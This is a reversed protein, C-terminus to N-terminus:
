LFKTTKITETSLYDLAKELDVDLNLHQPTWPVYLDPEIGKGTMGLGKDIRSLRSTPYMFEFGESWKKSVLNAYDNLGMTPRGIVIVKNSKKCIEVFSDGSSGCMCDTLVTILKPKKYGKVFTIPMIDEFNFEVLGKGKNKKWERIFIKLFLQAEEDEINELETLSEELFREANSNTCNFFMKDEKDVLELGEEPILYPLLPFFSSDSGGYNVRVDVIWNEMSDLLIQNENILNIISDPNMFDSFTLLLTDENVKEVSYTPEYTTKEYFKFKMENINGHSDKVEGFDYLSFIPMWNEREPHNENLLRGHKEKLEPITYGGISNFSMGTQLDLEKNVQTVYLSERYRRVRFGRDFVKTNMLCNDYFHIHRDNFDLLYDKVIDVFRERTLENNEKLLQIKGLYEEPNDWGYKDNFGAYDKHMIDLIEKFIHEM